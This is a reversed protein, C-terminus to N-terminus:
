PQAARRRRGSALYVSARPDLLPDQSPSIGDVRPLPDFIIHRQEADNDPVVAHLELTGFDVIPRDQPWQVTSDDVIDGEAAIQVQIRLTVPRNILRAKIEDFLFNPNQEPANGAELYKSGDVPVIRYRGFRAVDGADTFQYASVSYFSETAFSAPIPKPVQAFALAAPHSAFFSDLPTPKPSEPTTAHIARLFQLFDEVTRTPFANVSHAIIDTHVHEALLFRIAIGRPSANQDYDPIGPVGAFDSFRVMVPVSPRTVHPAKTLARGGPAPTFTGSLLIGKAHVPRFGPHLGFVDDFAQLTERSMADPQERGTQTKTM